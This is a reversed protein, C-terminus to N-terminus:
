GNKKNEKEIFYKTFVDLAKRHIFRFVAEDPIGQDNMFNLRDYYSDMEPTKVKYISKDSGISCGCEADYSIYFKGCGTTYKVTSPIGETINSTITGFPKDAGVYVSATYECGCINFKIDISALHNTDTPEEFKIDDVKIVEKAIEDFYTESVVSGFDANCRINTTPNPTKQYMEYFNQYEPLADAYKEYARSTYVPSYVPNYILSGNAGLVAMHTYVADQFIYRPHNTTDYFDLEFITLYHGNIFISNIISTHTYNM